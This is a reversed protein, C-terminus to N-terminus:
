SFNHIISYQEIVSNSPVRVKSSLPIPAAPNDTVPRDMQSNGKTLPLKRCPSFLIHYHTFLIGWFSVTSM